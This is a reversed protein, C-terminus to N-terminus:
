TEREAQWPVLRKALFQLTLNFTIGLVAIVTLGAYLQETRLTEWALWIM